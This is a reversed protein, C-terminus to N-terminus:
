GFIYIESWRHEIRTPEFPFRCAILVGRASNEESPQIHYHSDILEKALSVRSPVTMYETLVIIDPQEQLLYRAILSCKEVDYSSRINLTIIKM